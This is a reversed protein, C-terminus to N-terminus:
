RGNCAFEGHLEQRTRNLWVIAEAESDQYPENVAFLARLRDIM